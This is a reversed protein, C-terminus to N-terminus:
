DETLFCVDKTKHKKPTWMTTATMGSDLLEEYKQFWCKSSQLLHDNDKKLDQVQKRAKELEKELESNRKGLIPEHEKVELKSHEEAEEREVHYRNITPFFVKHGLETATTNIDLLCAYLDQYCEANRMGPIQLIGSSLVPPHGALKTFSRRSFTNCCAHYSLKNGYVLSRRFTALWHAKCWAKLRDQDTKLTPDFIDETANGGITWEGRGSSTLNHGHDETEGAFDKRVLTTM